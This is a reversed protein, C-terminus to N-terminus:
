NLDCVIQAFFLLVTNLFIFLVFFELIQSFLLQCGINVTIEIELITAM